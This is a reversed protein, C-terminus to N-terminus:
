LFFEKAETPTRAEIAQDYLGYGYVIGVSNGPERYIVHLLLLISM